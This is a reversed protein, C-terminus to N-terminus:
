TLLQRTLAHVLPAAGKLRENLAVGGTADSLARYLGLSSAVPDAVCYERDGEVIGTDMMGVRNHRNDGREEQPVHGSDGWAGHHGVVVVEGEERLIGGEVDALHSHGGEAVHWDPSLSFDCLSLPSHM